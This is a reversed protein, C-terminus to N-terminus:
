IQMWKIREMWNEVEWANEKEGLMGIDRAQAHAIECFYEAPSDLSGYEMWSKAPCQECLAKLFCRACRTLYDSNTARTKRLRPFFDILANKLTGSKLDYVTDPHRLSICPQLVGYADLCVRKGAGCSFLMDGPPRLFKSCFESVGKVYEERRRSLFSIGDEPSVRMTEILRNKSLSDRRGRLDFFMSHSPPGEMWPITSAWKEFIDVDDRNFPLLAGKVVFPIKRDILLNVGRQFEEYSGAIRTVAEYTEKRMGYVSIEIKEMLPVRTFLDALRPTILRANTFLRVKLGLRRTFLYIDEFDERLLPEGGTFRVNLAGLAAAETLIRKLDENTLEKSKVQSDKEPLNIFCHVCNNNCRETLEINLSNLLPSNNKWLKSGSENIRSVYSSM